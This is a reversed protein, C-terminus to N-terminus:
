LLKRRCDYRDVAIFLTNNYANNYFATIYHYYYLCVEDKAALRVRLAAQNTVFSIDRTTSSSFINNPWFNHKLWCNYGKSKDLVFGICTATTDCAWLCGEFSGYWYTIDNGFFDTNPLTAYSRQATTQHLVATLSLLRILQKSMKFSFSFNNKFSQPFDNTV